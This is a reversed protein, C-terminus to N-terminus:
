SGCGGCGGGCGGGCSSGCSSSGSDSSGSDSSGSDSSSGCSSGCSSFTAKSDTTGSQAKPFLKKSWAFETGALAGVGFVATLLALEATSGGPRIQSSRLKLSEFLNRTEGLFWFGLETMRPHLVKYLIVQVILAMVILFSVPRDRSIGIFVKIAAVSVLLSAAMIWVTGRMSRIALDPLLRRHALMKEYEDLEPFSWQFVQQATQQKAFFQVMKKEFPKRLESQERGTSQVQGDVVKLYGRDILSVMAVRLAEERGGRLYAILYPDTMKESLLARRDAVTERERKRRLNRVVALVVVSLVAYFLLFQPGAFNFPNPIM